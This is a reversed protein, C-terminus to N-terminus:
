RVVASMCTIRPRHDHLHHQRIHVPPGIEKAELTRVLSAETYRAPPQTEHGDAQVAVAHLVDGTRMPPLPRTRTPNPRSPPVAPQRRRPLRRKRLTGRRWGAARGTRDQTGRVRSPGGRHGEHLGPIRHVRAPPRSRRGRRLNRRAASLRVTATSGTADAMQSALTRQWILTYLKLQDAPVKTALEQPDRFRAGAPRICEHAEQAGATRTTYQKPGDSLFAKGFHFEVANRAAEIAEQSLTVSDTRMYTIYGNEYLGQAARMTQRSSM